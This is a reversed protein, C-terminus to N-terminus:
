KFAKKPKGVKAGDEAPKAADSQCLDRAEDSSVELVEGVVGNVGARIVAGRLIEIKVKSM